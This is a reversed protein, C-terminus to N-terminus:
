LVWVSQGFKSDSGVQQYCCLLSVDKSLNKSRWYVTLLEPAQLTTVTCNTMKIRVVPEGAAVSPEAVRRMPCGESVYLSEIANKYGSCKFWGFPVSDLFYKNAIMNQLFQTIWNLHLAVTSVKYKREAKSRIPLVRTELCGTTCM